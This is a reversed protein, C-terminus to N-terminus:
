QSSCVSACPQSALTSASNIPVGEVVLGVSRHMPSRPRSQRQPVQQFFDKEGEPIVASVCEDRERDTEVCERENQFPDPVKKKVSPPFHAKSVSFGNAFRWAGHHYTSHLDIVASQVECMVRACLSVCSVYATRIRPWIAQHKHSFQTWTAQWM